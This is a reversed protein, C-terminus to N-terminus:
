EVRFSQEHHIHTTTVRVGSIAPGGITMRGGLSIM